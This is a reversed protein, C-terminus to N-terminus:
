REFRFEVSGFTGSSPPLPHDVTIVESGLTVVSTAGHEWEIRGAQRDLRGAMGRWEDPITCSTGSVCRLQLRQEVSDDEAVELSGGTAEVTGGCCPITGPLSGGVATLVYADDEPGTGDCAPLGAALLLPILLFPRFAKM